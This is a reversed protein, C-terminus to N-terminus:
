VRLYSSRDVHGSEIWWGSPSGFGTAMARELTWLAPGAPGDIMRRLRTRPEERSLSEMRRHEADRRGAWSTVLAEHFALPERVDPM